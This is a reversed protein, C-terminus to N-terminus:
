KCLGSFTSSVFIRVVKKHLPPLDHFACVGLYVDKMAPELENDPSIITQKRSEKDASKSNEKTDPSIGEKKPNNEPPQSSNEQSAKPSDLNLKPVSPSCQPEANEKAQDPPQNKPTSSSPRDTKADVPGNTHNEGATQEIQKVQPTKTNAPNNKSDEVNAKDPHQNLQTNGSSPPETKTNMPNDTTNATKAETTTQNKQTGPSEPKTNDAKSQDSRSLNVNIQRTQQQKKQSQYM